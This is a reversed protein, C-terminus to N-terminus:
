KAAQTLNLQYLINGNQIRRAALFTIQTPKNGDEIEMLNLVTNAKAVLDKETLDTTPTNTGNKNFYILIQRDALQGRAIVEVHEPNINQQTISTYTPAAHTVQTPMDAQPIKMTISQASKIASTAQTVAEKITDTSTSILNSFDNIKQSISPIDTTTTAMICTDDITSALILQHKEEAKAMGEGIIDLYRHIVEEIKGEIEEVNKKLHDNTHSIYHVEKLCMVVARIGNIMEKMDHKRNAIYLLAMTLTATTIM